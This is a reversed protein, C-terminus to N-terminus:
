HLVIEKECALRMYWNTPTAAAAVFRASIAERWILLNGLPLRAPQRRFAGLRRAKLRRLRQRGAHKEQHDDRRAMAQQLRWHARDSRGKEIIRLRQDGAENMSGAVRDRERPGDPSSIFVV